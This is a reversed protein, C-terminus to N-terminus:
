CRARVGLQFVEGQRNGAIVNEIYKCIGQMSSATGGDAVRPRAMSYQRPPQPASIALLILLTYNTEHNLINVRHNELM